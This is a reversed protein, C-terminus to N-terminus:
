LVIRSIALAVIPATVGVWFSRRLWKNNQRMAADNLKLYKDLLKAYGAKGEKLDENDHVADLWNSPYTGIMGFEIPRAAIIACVAGIVLVCAAGIMGSLPRGTLKETAAVILAVAGAGQLSAVLCARSDAALAMQVQMKLREEAQRVIEDIQAPDKPILERYDNINDISPV